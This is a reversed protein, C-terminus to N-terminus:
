ALKLAHHWVLNGLFRGPLLAFAGATVCAGLYLSWMAARHRAVQRRVIWTIGLGLGVLTLVTLLHIPTFGHFHLGHFRRIFVSSLAAALLLTVWGYGAARHLRSGKRALLAFPGLLLAGLAAVLHIAVAPSLTHLMSRELRFPHRARHEAAAGPRRWRRAVFRGAADRFTAPM